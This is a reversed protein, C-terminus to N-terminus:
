RASWRSSILKKICLHTLIVFLIIGAFFWQAQRYDGVLQQLGERYLYATGALFCFWITAAVANVLVYGIFSLGTAGSIMQMLIRSGYVFKSLFLFRLGYQKMGLHLRLIQRQYRRMIKWRSLRDLHYVRGLLYWMIDSLLTATLSVAYVLWLRLEGIASLYLAPILVAEGLFFMGIFLFLYPHSLLM